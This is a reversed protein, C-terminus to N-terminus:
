KISGKSVQDTGGLVLVSCAMKELFGTSNGIPEILKWRTNWVALIVSVLGYVPKLQTWHTLYGDNYLTM